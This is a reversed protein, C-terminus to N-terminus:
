RQVYSKAPGISNPKTKTRALFEDICPPCCFTYKQGGIIWSFRDNAETGSIPCVLAGPKPKM